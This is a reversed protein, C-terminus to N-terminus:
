KINRIKFFDHCAFQYREDALTACDSEKGKALIDQLQAQLILENGSPLPKPEQTAEPTPQTSINGKQFVMMTIVFLIVAFAVTGAFIIKKDFLPSLHIYYWAAFLFDRM